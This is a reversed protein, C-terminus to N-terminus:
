QLKKVEWYKLKLEYVDIPERKMHEGSRFPSGKGTYGSLVSRRFRDSKNENSGHVIHSHLFVAQGKKVHPTIRSFNHGDPMVCAKGRENRWRIPNLKAREEDIEIPLIPLLHSAEYVWIGGNSEDTDDLSISVNATKNWQTQAYFSDQHADRGLEGPPKFYAWTQIGQIESNIIFEMAELIKPHGLIKAVLESEKHPHIYPDYEGYKDDVSNRRKRLNDLDESILDAEESTILDIVSYGKYKWDFSLQQVEERTLYKFM